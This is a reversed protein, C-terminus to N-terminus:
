KLGGAIVFASKNRMAYEVLTQWVGLNEPFVADDQRARNYRVLLYLLFCDHVSRPDLRWRTCYDRALDGILGSFWNDRFFTEICSEVFDRRWDASAGAECYLLSRFLTFFDFWSPYGQGLWEWDILGLQQQSSLLLHEATFDGHQVSPRGSSKAASEIGLEAASALWQQPIHSVQASPIRTMAEQAGNLTRLAMGLMEETSRRNQRALASRVKEALTEGPVASLIFLDTEETQETNLVRPV